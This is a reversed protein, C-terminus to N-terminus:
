RNELSKLFDISRQAVDERDVHQTLIHGSKEYLHTEIHDSGIRSRVYNLNSYPVTRDAKSYLLLAPATVSPLALDVAGILSHLEQVARGAWQDYRVRGLNPEGRKIQETRLYAPFDSQDSADYFPNVYKIWKAYPLLRNDIKLPAAMVVLGDVPQQAAILLALLGGMSLGSIFVRECSSTLMHYGDLASALWDQWRIREMNRHDTGHGALRPGCVTFGAAHLSQGYWAIEHPSAGMGHLVLVGTKNGVYFFPEAGRM